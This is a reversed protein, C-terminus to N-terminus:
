VLVKKILIQHLIKKINEPPIRGSQIWNYITKETVSLLLAYHSVTVYNDKKMENTIISKVRCVYYLYKVYCWNNDSIKIIVHKM